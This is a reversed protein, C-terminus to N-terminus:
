MTVANDMEDEEVGLAKKEAKAKDVAVEGEINEKKAQHNYSLYSSGLASAGGIGIAM